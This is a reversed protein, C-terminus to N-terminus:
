WTYRDSCIKLTVLRYQMALELKQHVADKEFTKGLCDSSAERPENTSKSNFEFCVM